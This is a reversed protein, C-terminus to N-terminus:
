LASAAAQQQLISAAHSYLAAQDKNHALPSERKNFAIFNLVGRSMPVLQGEADYQSKV